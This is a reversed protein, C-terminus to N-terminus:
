AQQEDGRSGKFSDAPVSEAGPVSAEPCCVFTVFVCYFISVSFWYGTSFLFFFTILHKKTLLCVFSRSNCVPLPCLCSLPGYVPCASHSSNVQTLNFCLSSSNCGYVRDQQEWEIARDVSARESDSSVRHCVLRGTRCLM